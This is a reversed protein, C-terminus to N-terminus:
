LINSHNFDFADAALAVAELHLDLRLRGVVLDDIRAIARPTVEVDELDPRLARAKHGFFGGFPTSPKLTLTARILM